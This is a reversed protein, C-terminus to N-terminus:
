NTGVKPLLGVVLKGTNWSRNILISYKFIRPSAKLAILSTSRRMSSSCISCLHMKRSGLGESMQGRDNSAITNSGITCLGLILAVNLLEEHYSKPQFRTFSQKSLASLLRTRSKMRKRYEEIIDGRWDEPRQSLKESKRIGSHLIISRKSSM